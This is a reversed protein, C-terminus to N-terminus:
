GIRSDPWFGFAVPRYRLGVLWRPVRVML